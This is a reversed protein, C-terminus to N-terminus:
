GNEQNITSHENFDSEIVVEGGNLALYVNGAVSLVLLFALLYTAIRWPKAVEKSLQILNELEM